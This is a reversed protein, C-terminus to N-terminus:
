RKIVGLLGSKYVFKEKEDSSLGITFLHGEPGSFPEKRLYKFLYQYGTNYGLPLNYSVNFVPFEKQNVIYSVVALKDSLPATTKEIIAQSIQSHIMFYLLIGITWLPITEILFRMMFIVILSTIFGYYYEPINGHYQSLLLIPTLLWLFTFLAVKPDKTKILAYLFSLMVLIKEFLLSNVFNLNGTIFISKWLVRIFNWNDTRTASSQSTLFEIIKHFNIFQHRFDFIILPMLSILFIILGMGFQKLSPKQSSLLVALFLYVLLSAPVLHLGAALSAFIVAPIFLQNSKLLRLCFYYGLIAVPAIYMANWATVSISSSILLASAFGVAQSYLSTAVFYTVIVTLISVAIVAYAGAIPDGGTALYFPALFYYHYPGVFFGNDSAVRPGILAPKKEWIMTMVKTADDAQDWDFGFRESLRISKIWISFIVIFFLIIWTSWKRLSIKKSM